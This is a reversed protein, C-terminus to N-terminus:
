DSPRSMYVVFFGLAVVAAFARGPHNRISQAVGTAMSRSDHSRVYDATGHLSSATKHAVREVPEVSVRNAQRSVAVAASDIASAVPERAKDVADIASQGWAAARAKLGATADSPKEAMSERESQQLRVENPDEPM